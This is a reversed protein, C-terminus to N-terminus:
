IQGINVYIQLRSDEVKEGKASLFERREWPFAMGIQVPVIKSYYVFSIGSGNFFKRDKTDWLDVGSVFGIGHHLNIGWEQYKFRLEPLWMGFSIGGYPKGRMDIAGVSKQAYARLTRVGGLYFRRHPMIEDRVAGFINGLGFQNHFVVRKDQQKYLSMLHTLTMQASLFANDMIKESKGKLLFTPEFFLQAKFGKTPDLLDDTKDWVLEMPFTMLTADFKELDNTFKGNDFSTAIEKETKAIEFLLQLEYSLFDTINKVFGGSFIYRSGKYATLDEDTYSLEGILSLSPIHFAHPIKTKAQLSKFKPIEKTVDYTLDGGLNLAEGRGFLNKHKWSLRGLLEGYSGDGVNKQWGVEGVFVKRPAEHVKLYTLLDEGQNLENKISVYSVLDSNILKRKTQETLRNQYLDGKEWSFYGRVFDEKLYKLNQVKVSHFYKKISKDVHIYIDVTKEEFNLSLKPRFSVAFPYGHNKFYEELVEISKLLDNESFYNNEKTYIRKQVKVEEEQTLGSFYVHRIKFRQNFKLYISLSFFDKTKSSIAHQITADFYGYAALIKKLIDKDKEFRNKLSTASSVKNSKFLESYHQYRELVESGPSIDTDLQIQYFFSSIM